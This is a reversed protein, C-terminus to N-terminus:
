SGHIYAIKLNTIMCQLSLLISETCRTCHFGLKVKNELHQKNQTGFISIFIYIYMFFDNPKLASQSYTNTIVATIILKIKACVGILIKRLKSHLFSTAWMIRSHPKVTAPELVSFHLCRLLKV